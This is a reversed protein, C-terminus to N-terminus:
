ALCGSVPSKSYVKFGRVFYELTLFSFFFFYNNFSMDRTDFASLKVNPRRKKNNNNRNDNEQKKKEKEENM